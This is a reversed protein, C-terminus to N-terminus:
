LYCNRLRNGNIKQPLVLESFFKTLVLSLGFTVTTVLTLTNLTEPKSMRGSHMETKVKMGETMALYKTGFKILTISVGFFKVKVSLLIDLLVLTNNGAQELQTNPTLKL